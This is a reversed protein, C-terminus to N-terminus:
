NEVYYMVMVAFWSDHIMVLCVSEWGLTLRFVLWFHFGQDLDLNHIVMAEPVFLWCVPDGRPETLSFPWTKPKTQVRAAIKKNRTKSLPM